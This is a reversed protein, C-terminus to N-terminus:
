LDLARALFAAMQGRTVVHRPRYTGDPYGNAIGAQTVAAIAPEHPNGAVDTFSHTGSEPLDLGRALFAAMQDRTVARQPRYTGDAYGTAIGATAVAAIAEEHAHGVADPFAGGPGPPLELGRTLFAAMQGRTVAQQPRFTGDPYGTAIGAAAVALIAQEHTHGAIDSFVPAAAVVEMNAMMDHDEHQLNHCHYVFRGTYERLTSILTVTEGPVVNVTDKWGAEAPGPPVGDRDLVRFMALHIHFPHASGSVNTVRWAEPRDLQPRADVREPDFPQGDIVWLRHEFSFSLEVDRVFAAASIAPISRLTSPVVSADSESRVVDFRMVDDTGNSTTGRLNKLVVSSGVPVDSFDVVVEAREAATVVVSEAAHPAALLGGDSAIMTMPQGNDLALEYERSNSANILRLRYKRAAVEHYPWVRGNVLITEFLMSDASDSYQLAGDPEFTRDMLLLPIDHEGSPLGLDDEADDELLYAGALGRYINRATQHMTHDHYWLTAAEQTNPYHFVREAGPPILDTPYGDHEPATHAGHNHVTVPIQLRNVQTVFVPRNTRARITPGPFEGNYTWMPTPLGPFIEVDSSRIEIRYHDGEEDTATPALVPPIRLPVAFPTTAHSSALAVVGREWPVLVAAGGVIGLRLLQRRTLM